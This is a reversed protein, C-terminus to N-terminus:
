QAGGDHEGLRAVASPIEHCARSEIFALLDDQRVLVKRGPRYAKLKGQQIWWRISEIPTHLNQSIQELTLFVPM